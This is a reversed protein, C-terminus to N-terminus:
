LGNALRGDEHKSKLVANWAAREYVSKLLVSVTSM